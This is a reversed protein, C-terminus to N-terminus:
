GDKRRNMVTDIIGYALAEEASMFFDREMDAAVQKETKGTNEAFYKITLKKLRVIEKAQINIDVAQGQVGGWPQHIMVRSSPLAYRKNKAGGALLVAGMSACQGLCITQVDPRIHQMTDYIALGATVSGGPSNIYLSIDKDPNQAELFLLQAVVLDASMDNIEGDVFIIRDKLLRSFIDYSREGNGTQEIVYPVLTSM